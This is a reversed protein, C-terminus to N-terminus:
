GHNNSPRVAVLHDAIFTVLARRVGAPGDASIAYAHDGINWKLMTGTSNGWITCRYWAAPHGRFNTHRVLDAASFCGFLVYPYARQQSASAEWIMAEGIGPASGIYSDPAAFSGTLSLLPIPCDHTPCDWNILPHIWPTPLEGPCYVLARMELAARQCTRRVSVPTPAFYISRFRTDGDPVSALRFGAQRAYQASAFCRADGKAFRHGPYNPPYYLKTSVQAVVDYDVPCLARGGYLRVPATSGSFVSVAAIAGSAFILAILVVGIARRQWRRGIRSKSGRTASGAAASEERTAHQAREAHARLLRELMEQEFEDLPIDRADTRV